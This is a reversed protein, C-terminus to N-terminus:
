NVWKTPNRLHGSRGGIMWTANPNVSYWSTILERQYRKGSVPWEPRRPPSHSTRYYQCQLIEIEIEKKIKRWNKTTAHSDSGNTRGDSESGTKKIGGRVRLLCDRREKENNQSIENRLNQIKEKLVQKTKIVFVSHLFCSTPSPSWFSIAQAVSVLKNLIVKQNM